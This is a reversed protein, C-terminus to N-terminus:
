RAGLGSWLLEFVSHQWESLKPAPQLSWLFMTGFAGLQFFRAMECASAGARVEGRERGLELIEALLRRGEELHPLALERVAQSSLLTVLLSRTLEPNQGPEDELSLLLNFLIERIPKKGHRAEQLAQQIKGIQKGAFGALVHEKTPFYNFFTGKGVDAAETIQEVHTAAFGQRAFLALAAQLIRARTEARRRERRGPTPQPGDRLPEAAPQSDTAM